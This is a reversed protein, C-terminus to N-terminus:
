ITLTKCNKHLSCRNIIRIRNINKWWYSGYGDERESWWSCLSLLEEMFDFASSDDQIGQCRFHLVMIM